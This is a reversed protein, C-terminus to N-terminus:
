ITSVGCKQVVITACSNAFGIACQINNTKLYEVVLAALFTDGAGSVDKVDVIDVPYQTGRYICGGGGITQITKEMILERRSGTLGHLKSNEVESKNLKIYSVNAAWDCLPKKNDLFVLPHNTSIEIINDKSLFGKNYDSIVIADYEDYSINKTTDM